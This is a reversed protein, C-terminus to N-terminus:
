HAARVLYFVLPSLTAAFIAATLLRVRFQFRQEHRPDAAVNQLFRIRRVISPHQWGAKRRDLGAADALKELASIFQASRDGGHDPNLRCSFLDAQGELLRSYSGFILGVYSGMAGLVMLGLPTGLSPGASSYWAELQEVVQPFLQAALVCLSAPLAMAAIRLLLHRHRIHGLEHAFVAEIEDENLQALLFGTVAANLIMQRTDWVLIERCRLGARRASQELRNRLPGLELPRTRWAYRLMVPFFILLVGLPPLYVLLAWDSEVVQPAIWWAADQAALIVLMPLLLIALCHRVQMVVYGWRTPLPEDIGDLSLSNARLAYDVEYFAAWSLIIPLLVPLLILLDDLLLAHELGWNFRVIRSWQLSYLIGATVLMWAVSHLQRARRYRVVIMDHPLVDRHIARVIRRSQYLALVALLAIGAVALLLRHGPSAVPERPSNESIVLAALVALALTLQM